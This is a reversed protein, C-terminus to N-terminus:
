ERSIPLPDELEGRMWAQIRPMVVETWLIKLCAAVPIALLMGYVGGVTGGALVAVVVTVPDLNTAKGAIMPTLIYSEILQVLLYVLTPWLVVGWLGLWITREQEPLALQDFLLLAISLPLGLGALYPVISFVGIVIGLTIAYPVGCIYWGIAFMVGMLFAIVIRGRVFGSVVRDMKHLLELSREKNRDPILTRGFRLVAPYWLSFFFFYFPILFVLLSIKVLTGIFRTVAETGGRALFMWNTGQTRSEQAQLRALEEEVIERARTETVPEDIMADADTPADLQDTAPQQEAGSEDFSRERPAQRPTPLLDLFSNFDERARDPIYEGIRAVRERVTGDRIDSILNSMQGVVLPVVIALLILLSGVITILLMTVARVRTMQLGPQACLWQILPEFLYALLLAVLLPITVARMAYGLWILFIVAAVMLVDRVAQIQWIHLRTLDHHPSPPPSSAADPDSDGQEFSEAM